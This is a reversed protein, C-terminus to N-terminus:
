EEGTGAEDGTSGEADEMVVDDGDHITDDAVSLTDDNQTDDGTGIEVDRDATATSDNDV